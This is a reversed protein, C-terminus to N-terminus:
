VLYVAISDLTRGTLRTPHRERREARVDSSRASSLLTGGRASTLVVDNRGSTPLCSCSRFTMHGEGGEGSAPACPRLGAGEGKVGEYTLAHVLEAPRILFGL